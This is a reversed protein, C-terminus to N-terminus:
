SRRARRARREGGGRRRQRARRRRRVAPRRAARGVARLREAAAVQAALIGKADCAGRGYLAGDRVDSPFFPPVCDFHTSLVVAPRDLRAFVNFRGDAVPQRDVRYGLAELRAALWEGAAQERGTTSDIDILEGRSRSPADLTDMSRAGDARSTREDRYKVIIPTAVSLGWERARGTTMPRSGPM